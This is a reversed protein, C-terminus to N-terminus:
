SKTGKRGGQQCSLKVTCSEKLLGIVKTRRLLVSNKKAKNFLIQVKSLFMVNSHLEFTIACYKKKKKKGESVNTEKRVFLKTRLAANVNVYKQVYPSVNFFHENM